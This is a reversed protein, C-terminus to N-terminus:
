PSSPHAAAVPQHLPFYLEFTTGADEASSFAIRGHHCDVARKVIALVLGTGPTVGVNAARFFASFVKDQQQLPIGRGQDRIRFALEDGASTVQIAVKTSAPSYKLANSILNEFAASLLNEDAHLTLEPPVACTLELRPDTTLTTDNFRTVLATVLEAVPVPKLEIEETNYELRNLFLVQDVLEKLSRISEAQLDFYRTVKEDVGKDIRKRLLFHAGQMATLPTRFEHSIMSVFERQMTFLEYQHDAVKAAERELRTRQTIDLYIGGIQQVQGAQDFIPFKVIELELAGDPRHLLGVRSVANRTRLIERDFQELQELQEAEDRPFVEHARRGIVLNPAIGLMESGRQNIFIYPGDVQKIVVAAPVHDVFSRFLAESTALREHMEVEPSRDRCNCAIGGDPLLSLTLDESFATGDQRQAPMVGHWHGESQLAPFAEAQIHQVGEPSYLIQWPKGLVEAQDKFGFIRLHEPNMYTFCGAADTLAFGERSKELGQLLGKSKADIATLPSASQGTLEGERPTFTVIAENPGPNFIQLTTTEAKTGASAVDAQGGPHASGGFIWHGALASRQTALQRAVLAVPSAPDGVALWGSGPSGAVVTCQIARSTGTRCFKLVGALPPRLGANM